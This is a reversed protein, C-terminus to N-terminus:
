GALVVEEYVAFDNFSQMYNQLGAPLAGQPFDGDGDSHLYTNVPEESHIHEGIGAVEILKDNKTSATPASSLTTDDTM